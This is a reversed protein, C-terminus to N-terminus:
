AKLDKLCEAFLYVPPFSLYKLLSKDKVSICVMIAFMLAAVFSLLLITAKLGAILGSYKLFTKALLPNLGESKSTRCVGNAIGGAATGAAVGAAVAGTPTAGTGLTAGGSVTSAARSSALSCASTALSASTCPSAGVASSAAFVAWCSASIAFRKAESLFSFSFASFARSRASFALILAILAGMVLKILSTKDTGFGRPLNRPLIM